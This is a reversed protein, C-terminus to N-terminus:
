VRCFQNTLYELARNNHLGHVVSLQPEKTLEEVWAAPFSSQVRPNSGYILQLQLKGLCEVWLLIKKKKPYM